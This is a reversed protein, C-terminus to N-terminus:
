SVELNASDFTFEPLIDGGGLISGFKIIQMGTKQYVFIEKSKVNVLWGLLAGNEIWELMKNKQDVLGDSAPSVEVVFDPVVYPFTKTDKTKSSNWKQHTVFSCDPSRMAGNPLYFGASSEFVKGLEKKKNWSKLAFFIEGAIESFQPLSPSMFIIAKDQTREIRIRDQEQCFSTFEEDSMRSFMKSKIEIDMVRSISSIIFTRKSFILEKTLFYRDAGRISSILFYNCAQLGPETDQKWARIM